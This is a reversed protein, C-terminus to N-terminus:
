KAFVDVSRLIELLVDQRNIGMINHICYNSTVADFVCDEFPLKTADGQIFEM